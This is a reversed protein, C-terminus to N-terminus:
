GHNGCDLQVPRPRAGSRPDHLDRAGAAVSVEPEGSVGARLRHDARHRLAPRLGDPRDLRHLLGTDGPVGVDDRSLRLAGILAADHRRLARAARGRDPGDRRTVAIIWLTVPLSQIIIEMVDRGNEISKGLNGHLLGWFYEFFQTVPDVDLRLARRLREIAAPDAEAGLRALVPDGPALRILGFSIVMVWFSVAAARVLRAALRMGVRRGEPEAERTVVIETAVLWDRTSTVPRTLKSRCRAPLYMSDDTASLLEYCPEFAIPRRHRLRGM